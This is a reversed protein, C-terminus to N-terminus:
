APDSLDIIGPSLIKIPLSGSKAISGPQTHYTRGEIVGMSVIDPM